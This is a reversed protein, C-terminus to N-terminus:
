PRQILHHPLLMDNSLVLEKVAGDFRVFKSRKNEVARWPGSFGRQCLNNGVGGASFKLLDVGCHGSFLIHLLNHGGCLVAPSHVAFSGNQKYVLDVAKVLSLLIIKKGKYLISGQDQDTRRRFIRIKLYVPSKKGSGANKLQLRQFRLINQFQDM